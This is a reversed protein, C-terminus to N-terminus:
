SMSLLGATHCIRSYCVCSYVRGYHIDFMDFYSTVTMYNVFGFSQKAPQVHCGAAPEAILVVLKTNLVEIDTIKCYLKQCQEGELLHQGQYCYWDVSLNTCDIVHKGGPM